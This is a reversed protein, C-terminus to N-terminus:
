VLIMLASGRWVTNLKDQFDPQECYHYELNIIKEALNALFDIRIRMCKFYGMRQSLVSFFGFFSNIVVFIILGYLIKEFPEQQQLNDIIFKPLLVLSLPFITASITYIIFHLYISKDKVNIRKIIKIYELSLFKKKKAEM